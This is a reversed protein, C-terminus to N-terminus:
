SYLRPCFLPPLASFHRPRGTLLEPRMCLSLWESVFAMVKESKKLIVVTSLIQNLPGFVDMSMNMHAFVNAKCYKDNRHLLRFSLIDHTYALDLWPRVDGGKFRCGSDAYLLVDGASMVSLTKLIFYPKWLWYGYGRPQKFIHAHQRRFHPDINEPSFSICLDFAMSTEADSILQVKSKKYHSNGFTIFFSRYKKESDPTISNLNGTNLMGLDIDVEAAFLGSRYILFVGLLLLALVICSTVYIRYRMM